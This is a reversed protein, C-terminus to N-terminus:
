RASEGGKVKSAMLMMPQHKVLGDARRSPIREHDMAGVRAPTAYTWKHAPGEFCSARHTAKPEDKKPLKSALIYEGPQNSIPMMNALVGVHRMKQCCDRVQSFSLGSGEAIEKITYPRHASEMWELFAIMTPSKTNVSTM